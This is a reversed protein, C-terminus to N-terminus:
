YSILRVKKVVPLDIHEVETPKTPRGKNMSHEDKEM